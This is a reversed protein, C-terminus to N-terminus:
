AGGAVIRPQLGNERAKEEFVASLFLFLFTCFSNNRINRYGPHGCSTGKVQLPTNIRTYCCLSDRTVVALKPSRKAVLCVDSGAGSPGRTLFYNTTAM